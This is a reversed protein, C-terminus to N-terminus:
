GRGGEKVINEHDRPRFSEVQKRGDPADWNEPVRFPACYAATTAASGRQTLECPKFELTGLRLADNPAASSAAALLAASLTTLM